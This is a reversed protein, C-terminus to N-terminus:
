HNHDDVRDARKTNTKAGAKVQKSNSKMKKKMAKEEKKHAEKLKTKDDTVLPIEVRSKDNVDQRKERAKVIKKNAKMEKKAAKAEQVAQAFSGQAFLLFACTTAAIIVKKMITSNITFNVQKASLGEVTAYCLNPESTKDIM